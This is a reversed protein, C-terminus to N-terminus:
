PQPQGTLARKQQSHWKWADAIIDELRNRYQPRWGVLQEIRSANSVLQAPDGERRPSVSFPITKGCVREAAKIVELVSFGKSYGVNFKHCGRKQDLFRLLELHAQALDWVHVYDRICSGDHTPYDDGFVTIKQSADLQSLLIRPILHSEPDHAEGIQGEPDAGAVNFYRLVGVPNGTTESLSELMEESLLKSTGYPNIPSLPETESIFNVSPQGYVAATSSFVIPVCLNLERLARMLGATGAVNNWFYKEPRLVSEGVEIKAAMHIVADIKLPKLLTVLQQPQTLDARILPGWKVAWDHGTSLDDVTIPHLGSLALKKCIHSGIYGAGGTVLINQM